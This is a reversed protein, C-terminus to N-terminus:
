RCKKRRNQFTSNNLFPLYKKVSLSGCWNKIGLPNGHADLLIKPPDIKQTLLSVIILTMISILFAWTSSIYVADWIAWDMYVKGAEAVGINAIKTMPLYCFTIIIWSLFGAVFSSLAGIHNAKKWFFAAIFSAMLGVLLVTWAIVMLKYITQLWLALVLAIFCIVPVMTRTLLLMTRDISLPKVIKLFNYGILSSAALIAGTASSMLIALIAIVFLVTLIPPLYKVGIWPIILETDAITLHPNSAFTALGLLPGIMGITIYIIAGAYCARVIVKENKGALVRQMLDQACLSGVGISLWAAIYYVWGTLGSYGLYGEGRIPYLAWTPFDSFNGAKTFIEWGGMYTIIVPFAILLVVVLIIFQFVDTITVAWMGGLYTYLVLVFCSMMIGAGMSWGTFVRLISGFAVLQSGVWGIEVIVLIILSCLGMIKGYRVHFIDGVTTYEARRMLRVFFIGALLLCLASSLPEFIIGQFGYLYSNAAAGMIPGAGYWTAVIAGLLMFFPLRRGAVIYDSSDKIYKVSFFGILVMIIMYIIVGVAVWSSYQYHGLELM